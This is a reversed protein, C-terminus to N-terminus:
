FIYNLTTYTEYVEHTLTSTCALTCLLSSSNVTVETDRLCLKSSQSFTKLKIMSWQNLSWQNIFNGQLNVYINPNLFDEVRLWYGLEVSKNVIFVGIALLKDM